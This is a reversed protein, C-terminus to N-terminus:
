RRAGVFINWNRPEFLNSVMVQRGSGSAHVFLGNGMYLGTHDVRSGSASFYLRDGAQLNAPEVGSGIMAQQAATRPLRYGNAAFAHQVLSSCDIGRRSTGGYRYPTGLWALAQSVFPNEGTYGNYAVAGGPSGTTIIQSSVDVTQSTVRLYKAPVWGTSRDSMLVASWEGSQKLVALQTGVPCKYLTVASSQPLRRIRAGNSAVQAVHAISATASSFRSRSAPPAAAEEGEGMVRVGGGLTNRTLPGFGGRSALNGRVVPKPTNPAQYVPAESPAESAMPLDIEGSVFAGGDLARPASAASATITPRPFNTAAPSIQPAFSAAYPTGFTVQGLPVLVTAGPAPLAAFNNKRKLSEVSVDHGAKQYRDAILEWSDGERITEVVSKGITGTAPQSAPFVSGGFGANEIKSAPAGPAAALNSLAAAGFKKEDVGPVRLLMSGLAADGGTEKLNNALRLQDTEVHYRAAIGALTDGPAVAHYIDARASTSFAPFLLAGGLVSAYVAASVVKGTLLPRLPM